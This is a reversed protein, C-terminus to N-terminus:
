SLSTCVMLLTQLTCYTMGDWIFNVDKVMIDKVIVYHTERKSPLLDPLYPLKKLSIITDYISPCLHVAITNSVILSILIPAILLIQGTMELAMVAVSMTHTAAGAFAVAGVVAYGGLVYTLLISWSVTFPLRALYLQHSDRALTYESLSGCIFVKM